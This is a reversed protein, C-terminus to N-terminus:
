RSKHPEKDDRMPLFETCHGRVSKEGHLCEIRRTGDLLRLVSEIAGQYVQDAQIRALHRESAAHLDEVAFHGAPVDDCARVLERRGLAPIYGLYPECVTGSM